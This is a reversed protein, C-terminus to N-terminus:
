VWDKRQDLYPKRTAMTTLQKILIKSCSIKDDGELVDAAASTFINRRKRM